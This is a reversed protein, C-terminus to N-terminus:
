QKNTLLIYKWDHPGGSAQMAMCQLFLLSYFSSKNKTGPLMNYSTCNGACAQVQGLPRM